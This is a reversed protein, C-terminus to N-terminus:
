SCTTSGSVTAQDQILLSPKYNTTGSVIGNNWRSVTQYQGSPDKFKVPGNCQIVTNHTYGPSDYSNVYGHGNQAGSYVLSNAPNSANYTWDATAIVDQATPNPSWDTDAQWPINDVVSGSTYCIATSGQIFCSASAFTAALLGGVMLATQPKFKFRM